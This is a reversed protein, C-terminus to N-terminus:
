WAMCCWAVGHLVLCCWTKSTEQHFAGFGETFWCFGWFFLVLLFCKPLHHAQGSWRGSHQTTQTHKNTKGLTKSSEEVFIPYGELKQHNKSSHIFITQKGPVAEQIHPKKPAKQTKGLTQSTEHV